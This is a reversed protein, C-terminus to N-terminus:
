AIAPGPGAASFGGMVSSFAARLETSSFKRLRGPLKQNEVLMLFEDGLHHFAAAITPAATNLAWRLNRTVEAKVTEIALRPATAIAEPVARGKAEALLACHWDSAGAFFDGPRRLVDSPLERLKNGYRLEARVWPSGSEVGFLQHGKEYVNTQKGAEKSGFYFSRESGAQTWNGVMNPKPRKGCVDMAGAEFDALVRAMGGELGDFFDLALDARTITAKCDDIFDALRRNWGTAAFTCAAGYLNCHITRSQAQQRPSDGSALFGVWGCEAGNREISWRHRYFDHGKRMEPAVSFDSGLLRAVHQALELAQSSAAFDPDPVERLAARFQQLRYDTEDWQDMPLPFLAEAAALPANRLFTTFRLWDVHVLEGSEQREAELRLKVEGGDLVLPCTKAKRVLISGAPRTV